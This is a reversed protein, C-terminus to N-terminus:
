PAVITVEKTGVVQGNDLVELTYTGPPLGAPKVMHFTVATPQDSPLVVETTEDVVTGDSAKWRGVLQVAPTPAALNVAAFVTDGPTFTAKDVTIVRRDATMERGLVIQDVHIKAAGTTGSEGTTTTEQKKSCSVVALAAIVSAVLLSAALRPSKRELLAMM